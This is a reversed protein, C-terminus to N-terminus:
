YLDVKGDTDSKLPCVSDNQAQAFPILGAMLLVTLMLSVNPHYRRPVYRLAMGNLKYPLKLFSQDSFGCSSVIFDHFTYLIKSEILSLVMESNQLDLTQGYKELPGFPM